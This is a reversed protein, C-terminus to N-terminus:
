IKRDMAIIRMLIRLTTYSEGDFQLGVEEENKDLINLPHEM